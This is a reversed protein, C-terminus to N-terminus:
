KKESLLSLGAAAAVLAAGALKRGRRRLMALGLTALGSGLWGVKPLGALRGARVAVRSAVFGGRERTEVEPAPLAPVAEPAPLAAVPEGAVHDAVWARRLGMPQPAGHTTDATTQHELEANLEAGFLLVYASLYLWTLLAVGAGLPGASEDYSAFRTVYAGFGLTLVLWLLAAFLSGPTIWRWRAKRRSPGFRYLAAAGGAGAVTLLVYTFVTGAVGLAGKGADMLESLAALAAAALVALTLAAVATATMALITLNLRVFGRKEKEEYAINLATIVAGAGNRAGFIALGLALLIGLGKRGDSSAVLALLEQGIMRAVHEPVVATLGQIHKVVTAPEAFVGYALVVATLLPVMGLFGYFAVGAAVLGINDDGAERWTRVAVQRWARWPMAWPSTAERGNGDM